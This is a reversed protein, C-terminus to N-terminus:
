QWKSKIDKTIVSYENDWNLKKALGKRTWAEISSCGYRVGFGEIIDTFDKWMEYDHGSKTAFTIIRLVKKRPYTIIETVGACFIDGDNMGVWLTEKEELILDLIDSPLMEGEAHVLAKELLPKVEEWVYEIDDPNVILLNPKGKDILKSTSTLVKDM